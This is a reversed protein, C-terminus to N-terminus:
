TVPLNANGVEISGCQEKRSNQLLLFPTEKREICGVVGAIPWISGGGGGVRKSGRM